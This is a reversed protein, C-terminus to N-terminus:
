FKGLRMREKTFHKQLYEYMATNMFSQIEGLCNADLIVLIERTFFCYRRWPAYWKIVGLANGTQKNRVLWTRTKKSPLTLEDFYLFSKM